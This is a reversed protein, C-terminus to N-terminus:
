KRKRYIGLERIGPSKGYYGTIKLEVSSCSLEELGIMLQNNEYQANDIKKVAKGDCIIEFDRPAYNHHQFGMISIACIKQPQKFTVVLRYLKQDDDKDWYTSPDGDIAAQPGKSEGDDKLGDPSTAVGTPAINELDGVFLRMSEALQRAAPSKCTDLVKQVAAAAADPHTPRIAKAIRVVATAAEVEVAADSLCSAALEMAAPHKIDILGGLLLKRDDPRDALKMADAYLSVVQQPANGPLSALRVFGCLALVKHTQNKTERAITLLDAMAIPEPWDALGRIATDAVAADSDKAAARLSEISAKAPIRSLVRLISSRVDTGAQPMKGAIAASQAERDSDRLCISALAKEVAPRDDTTKADAILKLLDPIAKIDGIAALADLAAARVAKDPDVIQQVFMTNASIAHRAALASIAEVRQAPEGKQAASVLAADSEKDRLARLSKRAAAQDAANASTAAALLLPVHSADGIRGLALIAAIRVNPDQSKAAPLVATLASKDTCMSLVLAQVDAPLTPLDRLIGSLAETGGSDALFRLAILRMKADEGKIATAFIPAAKAKDALLMSRLAATQLVADFSQTFVGHAAAFADASKGEAAVQDACLLIADFRTRKLSDPVKAAQLAGLADSGGIHGARLPGIRCGGPRYGESAPHDAARM